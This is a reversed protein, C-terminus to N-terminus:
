SIIATYLYWEVISLFIYSWCVTMMDLLMLLNDSWIPLVYGSIVVISASKVLLLLLMNHTAVCGITDCASLAELVIINAWCVGVLSYHSRPLVLELWELTASAHNYSCSGTFLIYHRGQLLMLLLHRFTTSRVLKQLLIHSVLYLSLSIIIIWLYNITSNITWALKTNLVRILICM